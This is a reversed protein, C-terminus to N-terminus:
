HHLEDFDRRFRSGIGCKIIRYFQGFNPQKNGNLRSEILKRGDEFKDSQVNSGLLIFMQKKGSIACSGVGFFFFGGLQQYSM